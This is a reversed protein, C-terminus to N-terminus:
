GAHLLQGRAEVTAPTLVARIADALAPVIDIANSAHPITNTTVIRAPGAAALVDHAGPAFVAHVALCVASPAGGERLHRIAAIMTQGTSVIDDVLVPTRDRHAELAPITELVDDDGRRTKSLISVPAGAAAAVQEAWQRSEADPGLIWPNAVHQGIWAGISPAAHVVSTPIPYIADLSAYRHLHPDVTVLWDVHTSLLQAFTRSTIAEGSNFRADQRLYALYPAVLGVRHAGLDHLGDALFLLPALLENPHRLTAVIVADAGSPDTDVRVFSEGDPFNRVCLSGAEGDAGIALREALVDNAPLAYFIATM